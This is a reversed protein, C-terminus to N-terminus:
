NSCNGCSGRPGAGGAQRESAAPGKSVSKALGQLSPTLPLLKSCRESTLGETWSRWLSVLLHQLGLGADILVEGQLQLRILLLSSGPTSPGWVDGSKGQKKPRNQTPDAACRHAFWWCAPSPRARGPCIVWGQSASAGRLYRRSLGSTM